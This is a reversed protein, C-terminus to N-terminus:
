FMSFERRVIRCDLSTVLSGGLDDVMNVVSKMKENLEPISNKYLDDFTGLIVKQKDLVETKYVQDM